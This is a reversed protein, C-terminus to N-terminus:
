LKVYVENKIIKNKAYLYLLSYMIFTIVWTVPYSMFLAEPTGIMKFVTFIWLIRLGCICVVSIIMDGLAYGLGRLTASMVDMLGCLGYTSCVITVRIIGMKIAEIDNPAYIRILNEACSLTIIIEIIWVILVDLLCYAVIKNIRKYNRAGLNQSVFAVAGHSFSNVAVYYFHGINDAAANGAIMASGFGNIATQVMVNSVSFFVSQMGTPIGVKLIDFLRDRYVKLRSIYLRTYDEEKVLIVTIIVASVTQSIVTALAVGAAKMRFQLVFILNLIVNIIGSLSVIYFPRRTDGKARLIAASFTYLLNPINGIFVIQMYIKAQPMVNDPVRIMELLPHAFIVGFVSVFLGCMLSLMIATHIIEHIKNKNKEGLARGLTVSVGLSIGVFFNLILASISGTTGVGALAEQGAYRGVVIVDAAHYMNQLLATLVFPITFKFINVFLPGSCMDISKSKSFM